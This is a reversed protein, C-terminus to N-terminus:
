SKCLNSPRCCSPTQATQFPQAGALGLKILDSPPAWQVRARPQSLQRFTVLSARSQDTCISAIAHCRQGIQTSRRIGPCVKTYKTAAFIDDFKRKITAGDALPWLSEEQHVFIVNDLVAQVCTVSQMCDGSKALAGFSVCSLQQATRATLCLWGSWGRARMHTREVGANVGCTCAGSTNM